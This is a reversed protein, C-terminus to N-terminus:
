KKPPLSENAVADPFVLTEAIGFCTLRKLRVSEVRWGLKKPPLTENAVADSFVLTEAIGFCALRKSRVSEVRM